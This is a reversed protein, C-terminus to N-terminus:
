SNNDFYPRKAATFNASDPVPLVLATNDHNAAMGAPLAPAAENWRGDTMVIQFNKRCSHQTGLSNQPDIAYPSNIGSTKFYEGARKFATRLPTENPPPTPLRSLWAYFETKNQSFTRIRNDRNVGDTGACTTGFTNCSNLGQWAVRTSDDFNAMARSVATMTMLNRTRYFAYWNAFNIREDVGGPGSNSSVLKKTYCNNDKSRNAVVPTCGANGSNFVYYYAQVWSTQTAFDGTFHRMFRYYDSTEAQAKTAPPSYGATPRYENEM